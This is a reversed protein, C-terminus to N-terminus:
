NVIKRAVYELDRRYTRTPVCGKGEYEVRFERWLSFRGLVKETISM